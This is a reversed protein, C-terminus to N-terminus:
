SRDLVKVGYPQGKKATADVENNFTMQGVKKEKRYIGTVAARDGNKPADKAELHGRLWVNVTQKNESLKFVTYKNGRRSTRAEFDAVKGSVTVPKEHHKDRAILLEPISVTVPKPPEAKQAFGIGAVAVLFLPLARM